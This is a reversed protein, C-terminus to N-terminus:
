SSFSSLRPRSCEYLKREKFWSTILAKEVLKTRFDNCVNNVQCVNGPTFRSSFNIRRATELNQCSRINIHFQAIYALYGARENGPSYQVVVVQGIASVADVIKFNVKPNINFIRNRIGDEAYGPICAAENLLGCVAM